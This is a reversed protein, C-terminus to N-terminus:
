KCYRACYYRRERRGQGLQRHFDQWFLTLLYAEYAIGEKCERKLTVKTSVHNSDLLNVSMSHVASAPAIMDNPSLHQSDPGQGDTTQSGRLDRFASNDHVSDISTDFPDDHGSLSSYEHERSVPTQLGSRQGLPSTVTSGSASTQVILLERRIKPIRRIQSRPNRCCKGRLPPQREEDSVVDDAMKLLILFVIAGLRVVDFAHCRIQLM